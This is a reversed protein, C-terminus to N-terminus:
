AFTVTELFIIKGRVANVPKNEPLKGFCFGQMHDLGINQWLQMM